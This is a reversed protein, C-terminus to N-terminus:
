LNCFSAVKTPNLILSSLVLYICIFLSLVGLFQYNQRRFHPFIYNDPSWKSHLYYFSYLFQQFFLLLCCLMNHWHLVLLVSIGLFFVLIFIYLVIILGTTVYEDSVQVKVAFSSFLKRMKSLCISLFISTGILMSLIHLVRFLM